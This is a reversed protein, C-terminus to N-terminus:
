PAGKPLVYRVWRRPRGGARSSCLFECYGVSVNDREIDSETMAISVRGCTKCFTVLVEKPPKRKM